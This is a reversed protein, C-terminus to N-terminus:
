TSSALRRISFARTRGECKVEIRLLGHRSEVLSIAIEPIGGHEAQLAAIFVTQRAKRRVVLMPVPPESYDDKGPFKCSIVETNPSGVMSIRTKVDEQVADGHWDSDTSITAADRLWSWPATSPLQTPSATGDIQLDSTDSYTHYLYDYTHETESDVQFIDLVYDGTVAVTRSFAVGPCALGASDAVTALKIDPGDVFDILDLKTGVPNHDRGDVMVTNHCITSRNLESMVRSSFAHKSSSKAEVDIALHKGRGFVMLGLKDRHSHVSDIDHSLFASFGGGTWYDADEDSRLFVYGHEPWTRTRLKLPGATQPLNELFLAKEPLATRNRLIWAIEPLRYADYAAYCLDLQEPKIRKAYCDGITPLTEDPFLTQLPGTVLDRLCRGNAFSQNWLDIESESNALHAALDMLPRLATYHYNISSEFWLGDDRSGNEILERAGQNGNIAYDVLEPRSFFMGCTGIFLKHWAFHNNFLGGMNDRLWWDDNERVAALAAEFFAEVKAAGDACMTDRILDYATLLDTCWISWNMGVDPHKAFFEYNAYHLLVDQVAEALNEDGTAAYAVAAQRATVCPASVESYTHRSVEPYTEIWRKGSAETWWDKDFVPLPERTLTEAREVLRGVLDQAWRDRSYRERAREIGNPGCAFIPHM